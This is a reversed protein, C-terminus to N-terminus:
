REVRSLALSHTELRVQSVGIRRYCAVVGRPYPRLPALRLVSLVNIAADAAPSFGRGEWREIFVARAPSFDRSSPAYPRGDASPGHAGVIRM